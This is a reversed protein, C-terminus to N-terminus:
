WGLFSRLAADSVCGDLIDDLLHVIRLHSLRVKDHTQKAQEAHHTRERVLNKRPESWTKEPDLPQVYSSKGADDLFPCHVTGDPRIRSAHVRHPAAGDLQLTFAHVRTGRLIYGPHNGDEFIIQELM